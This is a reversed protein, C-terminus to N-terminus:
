EGGRVYPKTLAAPGVARKSFIILAIITLVYPLMLFFQHPIWMGTVQLRMQIADIGGFFLAGLLVRRPKWAGFIVLAFAIFGRGATMNENFSGMWALPLFAGALGALIGGIIVCIYRTRFVDIGLTDAARPNEGVATINLGWATKFLIFYCIPVAVLALYVLLNQNFLIKGIVPIQSLGPISVDSLTHITPYAYPGKIGLRYFFGSLGLGLIWLSLGAVIQNVRLTVSMFAMLLGMLGGAVMAALLGLLLNQTFVTIWFGTIAGMLMMGEIGLNLVGSREAFTEGLAALLLPAALRVGRAGITSIAEIM